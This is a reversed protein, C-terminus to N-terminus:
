IPKLLHCNIQRNWCLWQSSAERVALLIFMALMGLPLNLYLARQADRSDEYEGGWAM